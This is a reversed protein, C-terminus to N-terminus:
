YFVMPDQKDQTNDQLFDRLDGRKLWRDWFWPEMFFNEAGEIHGLRYEWEQRTDVILLDPDEQYMEWLEETTLIQYGGEQAEQRVEEWTAEEFEIEVNTAWLATGSILLSLVMLILVRKLSM